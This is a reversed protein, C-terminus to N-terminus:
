LFSLRYVYVMNDDAVTLIQKGDNFFDTIEFRTSGALPFNQIIKGKNNLLYIENNQYSVTAIYSKKQNDLQIPFLDDQNTPLTIRYKKQFTNLKDYYNIGLSQGSVTVYDKRIDGVLDAMCFKVNENNGIAINLNFKKGQLNVVYAKGKSDMAVFRKHISDADDFHFKSNIRRGNLDLATPPIRMQGSRDFAYVLGADNLAILYDLKDIIFHQIPQSIIGINPQPSWGSLPEGRQLFGYINADACAVFIRYNKRGDYDLVTIGNTAKAILKRPYNDVNDGNRDILHIKDATNFLYQLKKNKYFDIQYIKSLIKGGLQKTWLITGNKNLLYVKYNADQIFIEKEGTDHNIVVKPPIIANANLESRWVVSTPQKGTQNFAAHLNIVLLNEYPTAHITIPQIKEFYKFEKELAKHFDKQLYTTFVQYANALNVYQYLNATQPLDKIFEQYNINQALSQNFDIKDVWQKLGQATNSFVVYKQNIFTYYPNRIPSFDDGFIPQFLDDSVIGYLNHPPYRFSSLEGNEQGFAKLSAVAKEYDQVEAVWFQNNKFGKQTPETIVYTLSNGLWPSFYKSFYERNTKKNKVFRQFDTSNFNLAYTTKEPLVKGIAISDTLKEKKLSRFFPNLKNTNLYGNIDFGNELFRIDLGSWTGLNKLTEIDKLYNRDVFHSLLLPLNNFNLYISCDANNGTKERVSLFDKQNSINERRNQLQLISKEILFSHRSILLLDNALCIFLREEKSFSFEHISIKEFVYHSYNQENNQWQLQFSELDIQLTNNPIVYLFDISQAEIIEAACLVESEKIFRSNEENQYFVKDFLKFDARLKQILFIDKLDNTYNKNKLLDQLKSYTNFELIMAVDIPVAEFLTTSAGSNGNIGLRSPLFFFCLMLIIIGISILIGKSKSM